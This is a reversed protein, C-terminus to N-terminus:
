NWLHRERDKQSTLQNQRAIRIQKYIFEDNEKSYNLVYKTIIECEMTSAKSYNLLKKQTGYEMTNNKLM